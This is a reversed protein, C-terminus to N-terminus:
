IQDKYLQFSCDWTAKIFFSLSKICRKVNIKKIIIIVRLHSTKTMLIMVCTWSESKFHLLYSFQCIEMLSVQRKKLLSFTNKFCGNSEFADHKLKQSSESGRRQVFNIWFWRSFSKLLQEVVVSCVSCLCPPNIENGATTDRHTCIM